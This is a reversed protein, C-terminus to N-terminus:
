EENRRSEPATLFRRLERAVPAPRGGRDSNWTAAHDLGPLEVRTANPLLTELASLTGKLYEPSKSGGLLLVETQLTRFIELDGSMGAVLKFDYRLTPALSRMSVYGGGPKSDESKMAMGTLLELLGRPVLNLFPPGLQAGKMGTILAGAVNGESMERDYRELVGDPISRDPFAAPEYVAIRRISPLGLAAKLTIVGGSSVGFVLHAGTSALVADLDEIEQAIGDGPGYPDSPGRGRRDVLYVTFADALAEALQLHNHGSSMAGHVVVLGPGRGLRRFGIVTGDKSTVSATAYQTSTLTDVGMHRFEKPDMREHEQM